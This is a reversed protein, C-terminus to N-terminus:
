DLKVPAPSDFPIQMKDEGFFINGKYIESIGRIIRERLGPHDFQGTVHSVVLNRVYKNGSEGARRISM